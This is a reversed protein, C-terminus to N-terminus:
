CDVDLYRGKDSEMRINRAVRELNIEDFTKKELVKYHKQERIHQGERVQQVYLELQRQILSIKM